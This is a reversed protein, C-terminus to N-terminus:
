LASLFVQYDEPTNINWFLEPDLGEVWGVDLEELVEAVKLRYTDLAAQVAGLASRRYCACAPQPRGAVRAVAADHGRSREYLLRAVEPTVRPLDCAVVVLADHVAAALGAEIGALPGLGPRLDPVRQLGGPALDAENASVLVEAFQQGLRGAIWEVMTTGGVPLLAKPRGMRRSAGGALILLTADLV